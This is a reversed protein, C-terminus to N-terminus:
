PGCATIGARLARRPQRDRLLRRDDPCTEVVVRKTGVPVAAETHRFEHSEWPQWRTKFPSECEPCSRGFFGDEEVPLSVSGTFGDGNREIDGARLAV